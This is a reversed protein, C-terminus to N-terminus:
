EVSFPAGSALSTQPGCPGSLPDVFQKTWTNLTVLPLTLTQMHLSKAFWLWEGVDWRLDFIIRYIILTIMIKM